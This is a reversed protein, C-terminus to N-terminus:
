LIHGFSMRLFPEDAIGADAGVPLGEVALKLLKPRRPAAASVDVALLHRARPDVPALKAPHEALQGGAVYDRHRADVPQRAAGKVQEADDLSDHVRLCL